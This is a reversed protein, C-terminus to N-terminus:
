SLLALLMNIINRKVNLKYQDADTYFLRRLIAM